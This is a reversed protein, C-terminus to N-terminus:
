DSTYDRESSVEAEANGRAIPSMPPPRELM